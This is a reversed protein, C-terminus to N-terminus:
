DLGITTPFIIDGTNEDVDMDMSYYRYSLGSGYSLSLGNASLDSTSLGIVKRYTTSSSTQLVFLEDGYISIANGYRTATTNCAAPTSLDTKDWKCIITSGGYLSSGRSLTYYYDEDSTLDLVNRLNTLDAEILVSVEQTSGDMKM